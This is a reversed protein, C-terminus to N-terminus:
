RLEIATIILVGTVDFSIVIRLDRKDITKGRVSYNWAHFREEFRDKKKEHHGHKLAFFIEPRTISREAQRDTAHRTDLYRGSELCARVADILNGLKPPRTM